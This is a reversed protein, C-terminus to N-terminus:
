LDTSATPTGDADSQEAPPEVNPQGISRMVFSVIEEMEPQYGKTTDVELTPVSLRPPDYEGIPLQIGDKAAHVARDGHFRERNSDSLGRQIFRSRALPPDISCLLICIESIKQLHELKAFWLKHQFAAEIVLTIGKTLLLEVAQFFTDYIDRNVDKGLSEHSSNATNVFGEKFEDRCLAPCRVQRALTHALTAKGSGPRGTVVVLLPKNMTPQKTRTRQRVVPSFYTEGLAGHHSNGM